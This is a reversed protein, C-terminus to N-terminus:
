VELDAELWAEIVKAKTLPAHPRERWRRLLRHWYDHRASAIPNTQISANILDRVRPDSHAQVLEAAAWVLLMMFPWGNSARLLFQRNEILTSEPIRNYLVELIIAGLRELDTSAPDFVIQRLKESDDVLVNASWDYQEGRDPYLAHRGVICAAVGPLLSREAPLRVIFSWPWRSGAFSMLNQEKWNEAEAVFAARVQCASDDKAAIHEGISDLTLENIFSPGKSVAKAVQRRMQDTKAALGSAWVSETPYKEFARDPIVSERGRWSGIPYTTIRIGGCYGASIEKEFELDSISSAHLLASDLSQWPLLLKRGVVRLRSRPLKLLKIFTGRDPAVAYSLSLGLERFIGSLKEPNLRSSLERQDESIEPQCLGKISLGMEKFQFNDIDYDFGGRRQIERLWKMLQQEDGDFGQMGLEITTKVLDRSPIQELNRRLADRILPGHWPANHLIAWRLQIGPVKETLTRLASVIVESPTEPWKWAWLLQGAGLSEAPAMTKIQEALYTELWARTNEGRVRELCSLFETDNLALMPRLSDRFLNRIAKDSELVGDELLHGAIWAGRALRQCIWSQHDDDEGQDLWRITEIVIALMNVDKSEVLASTLFYVVERWHSDGAVLRLRKRLDNLTVGHHFFGAAFFEQLQRIDFRIRDGSEPTTILVLRETAAQMVTDTLNQFNTEKQQRVVRSVIERFEDRTVEAHSGAATEARAHLVLGLHEHVTRILDKEQEFLQLLDRDSHQKIAEREFIVEYFRQYLRWKREPPRQGTRVIVAMIHSQLPTRMLDRVPGNESRIADTLFGMGREAEASSQRFRVLLEACRLATEAPLPEMNIRAGTLGDFQGSYGQPRSTCIALLDSNTAQKRLFREIETAVAGRIDGPVEDLGDLVVVWSRRSLARKLTGVEVSQEVRQAIRSAIYTLLGRPDEKSRAGFWQGFDKLTIYIPVRACAPWWQDAGDSNKIAQALGVTDRDAALDEDLILSSRQLQCFYQGITSKGQGPGGLIIWVRARAPDRRWTDWRKDRPESPDTRHNETATRCLTEMALPSVCGEKGQFPLDVFLQHIGPSETTSGAQELKTFQNEVLGEIVLEDIIADVSARDDTLQNRLEAFVHGPTLFHGYRDAVEPYQDLLHLIKQGGWIDFHMEPRAEQVLKRSQDFAGTQPVGSPDVNTALIWNDPWTRKTNEAQFEQLEEKIRAIIWKHPDGGPNPARFKSQVYWTGHWRDHESPYCAEGEFLGDRGGDPGPGFGTHGAGLVRMALANIMHEFATPHLSSLNYSQSM